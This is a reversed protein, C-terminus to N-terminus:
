PYEPSPHTRPIEKYEAFEVAFAHVGHDALSSILRAVQTEMIDGSQRRNEPSDRDFTAILDPPVTDDEGEEYVAIYRKTYAACAVPEVDLDAIHKRELSFLTVVAVSDVDDTMSIGQDTVEAESLAQQTFSAEFVNDDEEWTFSLSIDDPNEVMECITPGHLMPSDNVTMVDSEEVLKLIRAIKRYNM